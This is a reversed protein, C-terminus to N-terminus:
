LRQLPLHSYSFFTLVSDIHSLMVMQYILPPTIIVNTLTIDHLFHRSVRYIVISETKKRLTTESSKTDLTSSVRSRQDILHLCTQYADFVQQFGSPSRSYTNMQPAQKLLM